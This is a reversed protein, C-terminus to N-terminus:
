STGRVVRQLASNVNRGYGVRGNAYVTVLQLKPVGNGGATVYDPQVQVLQGGLPVLRPAGLITRLVASKGLDRSERNLLQLRSNVETSSLIKRTAQAPGDTLRDRPLSLLTLRTRGDDGVWGALYGVLNHRGRPTFPMVLMFHETTQGPLRALLYQPRMRWANVVSAREDPDVLRAPDPFRIEGAAEVPGALQLPESWADVGTWFADPDNAHYTAYVAFQATFLEAPYRLHARMERPMQWWPRFLTPYAAQWARMIPDASEAAFILVRGDFADVAARAAERIYNVRTRGLRVSASYPYDRSTTYGHFLYTVRGGIVTTQPKVDWRLFPALTRLRERVDRRLIIRSRDTITQSLLLKLDGFHAAFAARRLPSSLRIGGSGDYHYAPAQTGPTPQEVEGRKSSVILYGPKRSPHAGFYIRPEHLGLPNSHSDFERQEFYPYREADTGAARVAVVGYGHTYAFRDNAWSRASREVRRLDLQRPAVTMVHPVGDVTYRDLTPGAFKYYSGLSELENMTSSLVADDWLPVNELTRRNEALDAETLKQKGSLSRVNVRNLEFARQTAAIASAVYPRERSLAQPQVGFREIVSPFFSAGAITVAALVGATGLYRLPLRRVTAYLCLGAAVLALGMLLRLAPLRIRVDTFSAGPFATGKHPVVLAFQELRLRWACVFLLLAALVLLHARVARAMSLPRAFGLGGALAYAVIICVAALAITQLLWASVQQYVPLSFVFFGIDRHFLPDEAGFSGRHAWLLLHQWNAGPQSRSIALGFSLAAVPYVIQRYRWLQAIPRPREAPRARKLMVRDVVAFNLLLFAATGFGTVGEAIIKWKLTTWYVSQQGLEGFWLRDVYISALFKILEVAGGVTGLLLLARTRPTRWLSARARAADRLDSPARAAIRHILSEPASAHNSM